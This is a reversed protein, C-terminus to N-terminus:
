PSDHFLYNLSIVSVARVSSAVLKIEELNAPRSINEDQATM